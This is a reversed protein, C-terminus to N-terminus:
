PARKPGRLLLMCGLAGVVLGGIILASTFLSSGGQTANASRNMQMVLGIACAAISLAILSAGLKTM